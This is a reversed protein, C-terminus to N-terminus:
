WDVPNHKHQLLYPSKEKALRNEHKIKNVTEMEPNLVTKKPAKHSYFTRTKISESKLITRATVFSLARLM